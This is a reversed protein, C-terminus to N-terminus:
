TFEPLRKEFFANVAEAQNATGFLSSIYEREIAFRQATSRGEVGNLMKKMLRIADPSKQAIESALEMAETHPDESTRTAVGLSAAETGSLMKGTFYLEKAVDMGVLPPLLVSAGMDPTLGWRIELVSM